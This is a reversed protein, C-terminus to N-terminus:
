RHSRSVQFHNGEPDAFIAGRVRPDNLAERVLTAGLDQAKQVYYHLEIESYEFVPCILSPEKPEGPSLTMFVDGAKLEVWDPQSTKPTANLFKQWFQHELELDKVVLHFGRLKM